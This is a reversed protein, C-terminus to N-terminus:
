SAINLKAIDLQIDGGKSNIDNMAQHQTLSPIQQIVQEIISNTSQGFIPQHKQYVAQKTRCYTEIWWKNTLLTYERSTYCKHLCVLNLAACTAVHLKNLCVSNASNM